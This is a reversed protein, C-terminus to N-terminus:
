QIWSNEIKILWDRYKKVSTLWRKAQYGHREIGFYGQMQMTWHLHPSAM